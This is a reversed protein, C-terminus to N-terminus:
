IYKYRLLYYLLTTILLDIHAACLQDLSQIMYMTCQARKKPLTIIPLASFSM